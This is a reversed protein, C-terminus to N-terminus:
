AATNIGLSAAAIAFSNLLAFSFSLFKEKRTQASSSSNWYILMGVFLSLLVILLKSTGWEMNISEIVKMVITVAAPAGAFTLVAQPANIVGNTASPHPNASSPMDFYPNPM